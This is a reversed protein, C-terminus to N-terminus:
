WVNMEKRKKDWDEFEQSKKLYNNVFNKYRGEMVACVIAFVFFVITTFFYYMALYNPTLTETVM